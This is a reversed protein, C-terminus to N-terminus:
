NRILDILRNKKKDELEDDYCSQTQRDRGLGDVVLFGDQGLEKGVFGDGDNWDHFRCNDFFSYLHDFRNLNDLLHRHDPLYLDNLLHGDVLGHLDLLWDFHDSVNRHDSSNHFMDLDRIGNRHLLDDFHWDRKLLMDRIWNGHVSVDWVGDFNLTVVWHGYSKFTADIGWDNKLFLNGDNRFRNANFAQELLVDDVFPRGSEQLQLQLLLDMALFQGELLDLLNETLRTYKSYIIQLLYVITTLIHENM